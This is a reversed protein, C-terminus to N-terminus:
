DDDDDDDDDEEESLYEEESYEQESEEEAELFEEESIEEEEDSIEEERSLELNNLPPILQEFELNYGLSRMQKPLNKLELGPCHRFIARRLCRMAGDELTLCTVSSVRVMIFVQLLLFSRQTGCNLIEEICSVGGLKLIQLSPIQGLANMDESKLGDYGSLTIKTLTSPFVIKGLTLTKFALYLKLKRLKTLLQLSFEMGKLQRHGNIQLGLTRLNPFYGNKLFSELKSDLLVYCLTQVNQMKDESAGLLKVEFDSHLHRLHKLREINMNYKSTNYVIHLTQLSQLMCLRKLESFIMRLFKLSQLGKLYEANKGEDTNLGKFDLVNVQCDKPIHHPWEEVYGYVFLSCTRSQNSTVSCVHAGDDRPFSLKRANSNNDPNNSVSICLDRILNHIQCTKVGKGDSRRSVVQVLNRDVLEKLYEEGIDEPELANSRGTQIPEIFGEAIWLEILDRVRIDDYQPFVALYLFCPKMKESLDDYSLKLMEMMKKGDDDEAISWYPLLKKIEEWAEVSRERKAVIGATTKILLPLGNCSEAISRGIGELELPCMTSYFVQNRFLEWSEEENMLSVTLHPNKSSLVNAVRDDRTTVLIM